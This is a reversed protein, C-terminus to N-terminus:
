LPPESWPHIDGHERPAKGRRSGSDFIQPYEHVLDKLFEHAVLEASHRRHSPLNRKRTLVKIARLEVGPTLTYKGETVRELVSKPHSPDNVLAKLLGKRRFAVNVFEQWSLNSARVRKRRPRPISRKRRSKTRRSAMQAEKDIDTFLRKM